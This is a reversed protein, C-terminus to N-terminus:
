RSQFYSAVVCYIFSIFLLFSLFLFVLLSSSNRLRVEELWDIRAM